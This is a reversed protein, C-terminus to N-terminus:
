SAEAVVRMADFFNVPLGGPLQKVWPPASSGVLRLAQYAVLSLPVLKAPHEAVRVRFGTRALLAGLTPVSFFWLHQPPTMLRWRRGALRASLAGFDGTTLMLRAGTKMSRRLNALVEAPDALHEIVDLMVAADFPGHKEVLEPSLSSEVALGRERCAARAHDSVEVGCVSFREAAEELFYGYACGLEVLSGSLATHRGLARLTRRFEARVTDRSGQYDVYGDAQGGAFYSETYISAPDFGDPLETRALGCGDCTVVPFGNVEYLPRVESRGCAACVSM